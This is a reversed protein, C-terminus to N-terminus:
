TPIIRQKDPLDPNPRYLLATRGVQGVCQAGTVQELQRVLGDRDAPGGEGLRVKVLEHRALLAKLNALAADNLGAKGIVALADLKQGLARLYGKQRGTLESVRREM